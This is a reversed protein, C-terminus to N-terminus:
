ERCSFSAAANEDGSGNYQAHKPFPCLPRTVGPVSAGQAIVQDPARSNEVWNVIADVMNFRDLTRDGGGCHGMGPVLFLRSWDETKAPQNDKELRQYYEVTDLASFWPDSVGHFFILKGGHGHFSSLNTWANTDGLMSRADLATAASAEVDMSTGTAQGGEPVFPGALLGPLGRSNAIGTDYMYGPYVQQGAPTKPGAMGKSIAEAQAVSLCGEAKEGKCVLAKPDFSCGRPAFVLGDKAGDRADCSAVFSDVVLQRDSDSLAKNTQPRGQADKPAVSNLQTTMWRLALNSYNTRMAPAGAVIGDYYGPFRQSMMMAERGGTSCGVWYAHHAPKGYRAAVLEKAVVTVKANAQYLFNLAAEQDLLFSADFGAGLHGSDTSAIAFGQALAPTDGSYQAGVPPNLVGNLGGGGQYFFRGNWNAPLAVAFGIAFPKGDRGIRRDIVGDVRCHAPLNVPPAPPGGPRAAMTGAPVEVASTIEVNYGALKFASLASCAKGEAAFASVPLTSACLLSLVGIRRLNRTNM